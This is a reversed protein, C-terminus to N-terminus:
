KENLVSLYSNIMKYLTLNKRAYDYSNQKMNLLEMNNLSYFQNLANSISVPDKPNFLFGRIQDEVLVSHDCVNSVLIPKSLMMAECVANPLGEFLSPHIVAASDIILNEIDKREGLWFWHDNLLKNSSLKKSLQINYTRGTKSVDVKGAWYVSPMWGNNEFFIELALMLNLANKEPGVRGIALFYSKRNLSEYFQKKPYGNYIVHIKKRLWFFKNLWIAQTNNNTIISDARSYLIYKLLSNHTSKLYSSRESIIVKLNNVFFSSLLLYINPTDLYSIAADYKNSKILKILNFLISISNGDFQHININNDDIISKFFIYNPHYIFFEVNYNCGKLGLALNVIQKQAGGSGFHDIILLIKM